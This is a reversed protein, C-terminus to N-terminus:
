IENNGHENLSSQCISNLTGRCKSSRTDPLIRPPIVMLRAQISHWCTDRPTFIVMSSRPNLAKSKTLLITAAISQFMLCPTNKRCGKWDVKVLCYDNQASQSSDFVIFKNSVDAAETVQREKMSKLLSQKAANYCLKAPGWFRGCGPKSNFNYGDTCAVHFSGAYTGEINILYYSSLCLDGAKAYLSTSLIVPGLYITLNRFIRHM